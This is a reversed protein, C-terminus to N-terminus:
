SIGTIKGAAMMGNTRSPQKSYIYSMPNDPGFKTQLPKRSVDSRNAFVAWVRQADSSVSGTSDATLGSGHATAYEMALEYLLPGYGKTARVMGVKWYNGQQGFTMLGMTQANSQNEEQQLPVGKDDTYAYSGDQYVYSIICSNSQVKFNILVFDPLDNETKMAMENIHYWERFTMM